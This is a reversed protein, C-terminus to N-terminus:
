RGVPDAGFTMAFMAFESSAARFVLAHEGPAPLNVVRYMRAEDVTLIARGDRVTVDAGAEDARLPRGDLEVRVEFPTAPAGLVINASRGTFSLGLFDEFGASERAHVIAEFENRWLGDLYWKGDEWREPQPAGYLQEVDRGGTYYSRQGAYVGTQAYNRAYGGYLERTANASGADFPRAAVGGVPIDDVRHGARELAERIAQETEEYDGEGFHRYTIRGDAAVLYKAPWASNDFAGWTDFSADLAVPWTVGLDRSAREVNAPVKEFDFEPSHVGIITLGRDAYKRHWDQLHPLTRLCNVCTYTWFDVLVVRGAAREGALTRPESNFWATIGRVEPASEGPKVSETLLPNACATALLVVLMLPAFHVLRPPTMRM